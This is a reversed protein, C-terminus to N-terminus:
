INRKSCHEWWMERRPGMDWEEVGEEQAKEEMSGGGDGGLEHGGAGGVEM